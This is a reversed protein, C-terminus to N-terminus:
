KKGFEIIRSEIAARNANIRSELKVLRDELNEWRRDLKVDLSMVASHVDKPAIELRRLLFATETCLLLLLAVLTAYEFIGVHFMM